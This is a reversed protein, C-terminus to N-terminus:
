NMYKINRLPLRGHTLYQWTDLIQPCLLLYCLFLRQETSGGYATPLSWGMKSLPHAIINNFRTHHKHTFMSKIYSTFSTNFARTYVFTILLFYIAYFHFCTMSKIM